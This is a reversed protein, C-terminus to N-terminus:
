QAGDQGAAWADLLTEGNAVLADVEQEGPHWDGFTAREAAAVVSRFTEHEAAGLAAAAAALERHTAGHGAPALGRKRLEAVLLVLLLGPRRALPAHRVDQLSRVVLVATGRPSTGSPASDRERRLRAFVGAVRLENVIIVLTALAVVAGLAIVVMHAAREPLTLRELWEQLWSSEAGARRGLREQLWEMAREFLSLEPPPVLSPLEALATDLEAADIPPPADRDYRAAVKALAALEAAGFDEVAFDVVSAGWVGADLREAVEPCVDGVTFSPETEDAVRNREELAAVCAGVADAPVQALCSGLAAYAAAGCALRRLPASV